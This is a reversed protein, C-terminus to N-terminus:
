IGVGALRIPFALVVGLPLGIGWYGILAFLMPVRTDHLGHLMGSGGVQASDAIQFLAALMLFSTALDVLRKKSQGYRSLDFDFPSSGHGDDAVHGGHLCDGAGLGDLRRTPGV